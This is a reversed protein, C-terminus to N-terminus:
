LQRTSVPGALDIVETFGAVVQRSRYALTVSQVQSVETQSTFPREMCQYTQNRPSKFKECERGYCKLMSSSSSCHLVGMVSFM